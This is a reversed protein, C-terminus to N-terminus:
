KCATRDEDMAHMRHALVRVPPESFNFHDLQLRPDSTSFRGVSAVSIRPVTTRSLAALAPGLDSFHMSAIKSATACEWSPNDSASSELRRPEGLLMKNVNNRGITASL